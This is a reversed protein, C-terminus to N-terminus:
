QKRYKKRATLPLAALALLAAGGPEPIVTYTILLSPATAGERSSFEKVSQPTTENGRVVWGFNQAPNNAWAQVDSVLGSGSWTYLGLSSVVQSASITGSFDGGATAWLSPSSRHLWTADGPDAPAGNGGSGANTSGETWGASMRQVTTIFATNDKVKTVNMSLEAGTIVAGAPLSSLDFMVLARRIPSTDNTGVRGTMVFASAGSSQGGAPDEYLTADHVATVTVTVASAAGTLAAVMFVSAALPSLKM